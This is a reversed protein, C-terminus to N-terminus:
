SVSGSYHSVCPAVRIDPRTNTGSIEIVQKVPIM